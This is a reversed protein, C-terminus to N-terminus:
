LVNKWAGKEYEKHNMFELAFVKGLNFHVACILRYENRRINFVYVKKGSKVTVPDVSPFTKLMDPPHTWKAGKVITVWVELPEKARPHQDCWEKITSPKIIRM